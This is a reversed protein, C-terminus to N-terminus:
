KQVALRFAQLVRDYDNEKSVERLQFRVHAMQQYYQMFAYNIGAGTLAGLVPIAQATLKQGLLVAFRPAVAQIVNQVVQGTIAIRASIFGTDASDDFHLPGGDGFVRICELRVDDDTIDEGYEVAINQVSRLILSITVPIEATATALGGMGGVAGAVTAARRHAAEGSVRELVSELQSGAPANQSWNATKYAAHLGSSVAASLRTLAEDSLLKETSTVKSGGYNIAKIILTEADTYQKAAADISALGEASIDIKDIVEDEPM